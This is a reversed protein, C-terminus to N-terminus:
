SRRIRWLAHERGDVTKWASFAPKETLSLIIADLVPDQRHSVVVPGVHEEMYTQHNLNPRNLTKEHRKIRNEEYDQLSIEALVGFSTHNLYHQRYVYFFPESEPTLRGTAIMEATNFTKSMPVEELHEINSHLILEYEAPSFVAGCFDKVKVM